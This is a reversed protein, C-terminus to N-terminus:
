GDILQKTCWDAAAPLGPDTWPILDSRFPLGIGTFDHVPNPFGVVGRERICDALGSLKERVLETMEPDVALELAGVSLTAGCASLASVFQRDSPDLERLVAQLTPRGMSDLPIADIVVGLGSMCESFAALGVEVDTLVITTSTTSSTSVGHADTRSPSEAVAVCGALLVLWLWRAPRM